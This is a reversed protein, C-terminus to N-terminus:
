GQRRTVDIRKLKEFKSIAAEVAQLSTDDESVTDVHEFKASMKKLEAGISVVNKALKDIARCIELLCGIACGAMAILVIIQWTPM